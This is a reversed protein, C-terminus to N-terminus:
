CLKPRRGCRCCVAVEEMGMTGEPRDLVKNFAEQFDDVQKEAEGMRSLEEARPGLKEFQAGCREFAKKFIRCWSRVEEIDAEPRDEYISLKVFLQNM